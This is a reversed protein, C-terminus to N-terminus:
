NTAETYVELAAQYNPNISAIYERKENRVKSASKAMKRYVKDKSKLDKKFDLISKDALAEEYGPTAILYLYADESVEKDQRILAAAHKDDSSRVLHLEIVDMTKRAARVEEITPESTDGAGQASSFALVMFTFMFSLYVKKM